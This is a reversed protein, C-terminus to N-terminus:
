FLAFNHQRMHIKIILRQFAQAVLRQRQEAHLIMRFSRGSWVVGRIKKFSERVHHFLVLFTSPYPSRPSRVSHRSRLHSGFDTWQTARESPSSRSNPVKIRSKPKSRTM